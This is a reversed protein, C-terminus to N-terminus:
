TLTKHGRLLYEREGEGGLKFRLHFKGLEKELQFADHVATILWLLGVEDRM